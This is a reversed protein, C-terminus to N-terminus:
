ITDPMIECILFKWSDSVFNHALRFIYLKEMISTKEHVREYSNHTFGVHTSEM